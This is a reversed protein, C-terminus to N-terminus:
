SLRWLPYAQFDVEPIGLHESAQFAIETLIIQYKINASHLLCTKLKHSSLICLLAVIWIWFESKSNWIITTWIRFKLCKSNGSVLFETLTLIFVIYYLHACLIIWTSLCIPSNKHFTPRGRNMKTCVVFILKSFLQVIDKVLLSSDM